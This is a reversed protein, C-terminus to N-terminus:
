HQALMRLLQADSLQEAWRPKHKPEIRKMTDQILQVEDPTFERVEPPFVATWQSLDQEEHAEPEEDAESDSNLAAYGPTDGVSANCCQFDAFEEDFLSDDDVEIKETVRSAQAAEADVDVELRTANLTAQYEAELSALQRAAVAEFDIDPTTADADLQPEASVQNSSSNM